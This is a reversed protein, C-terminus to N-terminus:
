GGNILITTKSYNITGMLAILLITMRTKMYMIYMSQRNSKQEMADKRM